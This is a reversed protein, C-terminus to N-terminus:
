LALLGAVLVVGGVVTARSYSKKSDVFSKTVQERLKRTELQAKKSLQAAREKIPNNRQRFVSAARNASNYLIANTRAEIKDAISEDEGLDVTVKSEAAQRRARARDYYDSSEEGDLLAVISTLGDQLTVFLSGALEM